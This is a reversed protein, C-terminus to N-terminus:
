GLGSVRFRLRDLVRAHELVDPLAAVDGPGDPEVRFRKSFKYRADLALIQGSSDRFELGEVRSGLGLVRFGVGWVPELLHHHCVVPLLGGRDGELLHAVGWVGCEVRLERGEVRM